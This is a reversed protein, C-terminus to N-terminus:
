ETFHLPKNERKVYTNIHCDYPVTFTSVIEGDVAMTVKEGEAVAISIFNDKKTVERPM